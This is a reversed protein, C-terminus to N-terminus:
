LPWICPQVRRGLTCQWHKRDLTQMLEEEEQVTIVDHFLQMGPVVVNMTELVDEVSNPQNVRHSYEIRFRPCNSIGCALLHQKCKTAQDTDAFSVICYHANDQWLLHKVEGVLSCAELLAQPNVGKAPGANAIFLHPTPTTHQARKFSDGGCSGPCVVSMRFPVPELLLSLRCISGLDSGIRNPCSTISAATILWGGPLDIAAVSFSSLSCLNKTLLGLLFLM